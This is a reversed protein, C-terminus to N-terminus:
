TRNQAVPGSLSAAKGFKLMNHREWKFLGQETIFGRLIIKGSFPEWFPLMGLVQVSASTCVLHLEWPHRSGAPPHSWLQRPERSMSATADSSLTHLLFLSFM